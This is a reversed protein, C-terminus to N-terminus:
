KNELTEIRNKIWNVITLWEHDRYTIDVLELNSLTIILGTLESYEISSKSMLVELNPAGV